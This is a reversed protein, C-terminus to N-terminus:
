TSSVALRQMAIKTRKNKLPAEIKAKFEAIDHLPNVISGLFEFLAFLDMVGNQISSVALLMLKLLDM